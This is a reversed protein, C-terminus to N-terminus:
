NKLVFTEIAMCIQEFTFSKILEKSNKGMDARKERDTMLKMCHALSGMNGAEFTYGNYNHIVLDPACGVKNSVIVPLGCAMAENVALGWTENPGRSPLVFIDAMTYLAPMQSQNQFSKLFIGKNESQYKLVDKQLAGDGVMLLATQKDNLQKFAELLLLPDKKPEYKGAFLFLTADAPIGVKARLEKKLAIIKSAEDAFRMNDIAHPALIMQKEKLGYLEFYLRNHVGTYLAVSVYRYVFSLVMKRLWGKIGPTNDILTSDGRFLVPIKGKFHRMVKLHSHFNWGYMLVADAGYETIEQILNPNVIGKYTKSSPTKSTNQTFHFDYGELLPIDWEIHKNFGVDYLAQDSQGRTYFVKIQIKARRGLLAFLPANYQIPHTSVIALKKMEQNQQYQIANNVHHIFM